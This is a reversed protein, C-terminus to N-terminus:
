RGGLWEEAPRGAKRWCLSVHPVEAALLSLKNFNILHTEYKNKNLSLDLDNINNFPCDPWFANIFHMLLGNIFLQRQMILILVEKMKECQGTM